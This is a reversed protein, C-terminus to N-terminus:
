IFAPKWWARSPVLISTCTRRSAKSSDVLVDARESCAHTSIKHKVRLSICKDKPSKNDNGAELTHKGRKKIRSGTFPCHCHVSQPHSHPWRRSSTQSTSPKLQWCRWCTDWWSPHNAKQAGSHEPVVFPYITVCWFIFPLCTESAHEWGPSCVLQGPEKMLSAIQTTLEAALGWM